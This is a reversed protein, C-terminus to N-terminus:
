NKFSNNKQEKDEFKKNMSNNTFDYNTYQYEHNNKNNFSNKYVEKEILEFSRITKYDFEEKSHIKKQIFSPNYSKRRECNNKKDIECVTLKKKKKNNKDFFSKMISINM